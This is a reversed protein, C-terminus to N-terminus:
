EVPQFSNAIAIFEELPLPDQGENVKDSTYYILRYSVNGETWFLLQGINDESYVAETGNELLVTEGEENADRLNSIVVEVYRGERFTKIYNVFIEEIQEGDGYLEKYDDFTILTDIPEFPLQTPLQIPLSSIEVLQEITLNEHTVPVETLQEDSNSQCGTLFFLLFFSISTAFIKKM